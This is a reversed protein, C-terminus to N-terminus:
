TYLDLISRLHLSMQFMGKWQNESPNESLNFQTYRLPFIPGPGSVADGKIILQLALLKRCSVALLKRCSGVLGRARTPGMRSARFATSIPAREAKKLLAEDM